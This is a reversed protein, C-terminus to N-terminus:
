KFEYATLKVIHKMNDEFQLEIINRKDKSLVLDSITNGNITGQSASIIGVTEDREEGGVIIEIQGNVVDNEVKMSITHIMKGSKQEAMVRYDVPVNHLFEGETATDDPEYGGGGPATGKGKKRKKKTSRIHGGMSGGGKPKGKSPKLIVVKGKKVKTEIYTPDSDIIDTTPSNGEEQQDDDPTGFLPNDKLKEADPTLLDEPVFLYEDTGAIGLAGDGNTVFISQLSESVFNNIEERILYGKDGLKSFEWKKHAPDELDKLLAGGKDDKFYLVGFYGYSSSYHRARFIYMCKNRMHVIGDRAEKNKWIYLNTDGLISLKKDIKIFQNSTGANKVAEYYPRPNYDDHSRAKDLIEPYNQSMLEELSDTDIVTNGIEVILKNNYIALWFHRLTAKVMEKYAADVKSAEGDVGMVYIDTGPENRYFRDPIDTQLSAPKQGDQNDYYGYHMYKTEIGDKGKYLHTCLNAAGEFYTKGADTMTSVLITHIPSMVFFASHGFGYSGGAADDTKVNYGLARLFAYFPSDDPKYDMGTTNFDSVKIYYIVNQNNYTMDFRELMTKYQDAKKGYLKYAGWIHERLKYFNDFSKTRLKGFEFKMKVPQSKDKVVDLSNQISERILSPYPTDAFYAEAANNPGIDQAAQPQKEFHWECNRELISM